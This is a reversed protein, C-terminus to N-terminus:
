AAPVNALASDDKEPKISLGGSARLDLHYKMGKRVKISPADAHISRIGLKRAGERDNALNWFNDWIKKEFDTMKSGRAYAAPRSGEKDLVFGNMPEQMEGFIRKFFIISTSRLVDAEEVFQDEFKAIWHDIFVLDGEITFSRPQDIRDGQDNVEVFEITTILKDTAPDTDQKLVRIQALRHDVKLLRIKTDLEEIEQEQEAITKDQEVIVTQQQVIQKQKNEIKREADVLDARAEQLDAEKRELAGAREDYLSYGWWAAAGIGGVVVLALMTRILSNITSLAEVTRGM